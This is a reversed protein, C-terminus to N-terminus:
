YAMRPRGIKKSDVPLDESMWNDLDAIRWRVLKGIRKPEPFRNQRYLSQVTSVSLNVYAATETLTRLPSSAIM